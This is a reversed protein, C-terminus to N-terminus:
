YAFPQELSYRVGAQAALHVVADVAPAAGFAAMVAARDAIDLRVFSFGPRGALRALRAQKLTVDYYDSLSDAGIVTAGRDLLAAAVHLGIFGAAGTVLITM